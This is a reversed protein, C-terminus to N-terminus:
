VIYVFIFAFHGLFRSILFLVTFSRSFSRPLINESMFLLLTKKPYHALAISIFASVFLQPWILSIVKQMAFSVM